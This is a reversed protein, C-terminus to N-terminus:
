AAGAGLAASALLFCAALVGLALLAVVSVTNVWFMFALCGVGPLGHGAIREMRRAEQYYIYNAILGPLYFLWYLLFILVAPGTYSKMQAAVRQAEFYSQSPRSTNNGM